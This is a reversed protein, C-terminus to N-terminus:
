DGEPLVQGQGNWVVNTPNGNLMAHAHWANDCGKAYVQAQAYGAQGMARAADAASTGNIVDNASCAALASDVIPAVSSVALALFLSGVFLSIRPHM